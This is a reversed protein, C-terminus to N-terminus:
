ISKCQGDEDEPSIRQVQKGRKHSKGMIQHGFSEQMHGRAEPRQDKNKARGRPESTKMTRQAGPGQKGRKVMERSQSGGCGRREMQECKGEQGNAGKQGEPGDRKKGNLLPPVMGRLNNRHHKRWNGMGEM